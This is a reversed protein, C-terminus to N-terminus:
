YRLHPPSQKQTAPRGPLIRRDALVEIWSLSTANQHLLLILVNNGAFLHGLCRLATRADQRAGRPIDNKGNGDAHGQKLEIGSKESFQGTGPLKGNVQCKGKNQAVQAIGSRFFGRTVVERSRIDDQRYGATGGGNIQKGVIVM